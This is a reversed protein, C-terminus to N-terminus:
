VAKELAIKFDVGRPTAIKDFKIMYSQHVADVELIEGAGFYQHEVRNGVAFQPKVAWSSKLKIYLLTDEILDERLPTVYELNEKGAELIFRSPYRFADHNYGECDSLFLKDEARTFAVYALRREEELRKEDDAKRSPFIGESMGVVFVYPFELGKATHITMMSVADKNNERDDNTFLAIHQLYSHLDNEEGATMEYDYISQKLEALNDLRDDEGSVRMYEEYGSEKLLASLLDTLSLQPNKYKEILRIFGSAKTKKFMPDDANRLLAEYLSCHNQEAYERLFLLRTKGIGRAPVNIIREFSLDDFSVVMRLYSLVDKIERRGYFPTGSYLIHEIQNKVFAEEFPRSVYHARYLIAIDSLKAGQEKLNIIQQSVWEAEDKATPAHYYIAQGTGTRMPILDKEFRIHNQKILENAPKLINELSRYNKNMIVDTCPHFHQHFDLINRLDARRWEFITQDPDGVIFLNKHYDCLIKAITLEKLSVDQFEDIMIYELRMQWKERKEPNNQLIYLQLNLLDQYDLGFMKRQEYLYELWVKEKLDLATERAKNLKEMSPEILLPIYEPFDKKIMIYGGVVEKVTMEKSTIKFKEFCRSVIGRMDEEDLIIFDKPYQVANCDERLFQVAFGHFTCIYGTDKDGIIKRIRKKMEKASKNTFTACLIHNTAVGLNEVLHVYRHTLAHTKGSGAGAIVRFFGETGEVAQRQEENLSGSPSGGSFIDYSM